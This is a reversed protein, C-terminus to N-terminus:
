QVYGVAATAAGGDTWLWLRTGADSDVLVQIADDRNLGIGDGPTQVAVAVFIVSPGRNRVLYRGVGRTTVPAPTSGVTVVTVLDSLVGPLAVGSAEATVEDEAQDEGTSGARHERWSALIQQAGSNRLADAYGSGRAALPQDFQYGCYRVVGENVVAAPTTAFASGLHREVAVSAFALLREVEALEEATSGLRLANTLEAATITVAM